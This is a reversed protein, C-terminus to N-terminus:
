GPALFSFAPLNRLVWYVALMGAAFVAAAQPIFIKKLGTGPFVIRIYEHVLIAACPIGLIFLMCNYSFAAAINGHFLARLARSSGCGACYWGTLEYFFCPITLKGNLFYLLGLVLCFPLGFAIFIRETREQRM